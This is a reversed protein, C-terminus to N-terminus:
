RSGKQHKIKPLKAFKKYKTLISDAKYLSIGLKEAIIAASCGDCFLSWIRHEQVTPFIHAGLFTVAITYYIERNERDKLASSITRPDVEAMLSGDSKEIDEFGVDALKQYWKRKLKKFQIRNM